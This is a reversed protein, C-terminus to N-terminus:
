KAGVVYYDFTVGSVSVSCSTYGGNGEVGAQVYVRLEYVANNPINNISSYGLQASFAQNTVSGVGEVLQAAVVGTDVRYLDVYGGLGVGYESVGPCNSTVSGILDLRAFQIAASGSSPGFTTSTITASGAYDINSFSVLSKKGGSAGSYSGSGSNAAVVAYPVTLLANTAWILGFIVFISIRM